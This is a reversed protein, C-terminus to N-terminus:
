FNRTRADRPPLHLFVDASRVRQILSSQIMSRACSPHAASHVPRKRMSLLDGHKPARFGPRVSDVRRHTLAIRHCMTGILSESLLLHSEDSLDPSIYQVYTCHIDGFISCNLRRPCVSARSGAFADSQLGNGFFVQMKNLDFQDFIRSFNGAITKVMHAVPRM